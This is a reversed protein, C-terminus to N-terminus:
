HLRCRRASRRKMGPSAAWAAATLVWLRIEGIPSDKWEGAQAFGFSVPPRSRANARVEFTTIAQYGCVWIANIAEIGATLAERGWGEPTFLTHLEAVFGLPDLKVFLFGGHESALPLVDPAAAVKALKLPDMGGLTERVAPHSAVAAWWGVDREVRIM